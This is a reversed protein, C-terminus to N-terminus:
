KSPHEGFRLPKLEVVGIAILILSCGAVLVATVSEAGALVSTVAAFAPELAFILATRTATTRAQAWAQVAFAVATALLGTVVLAFVVAGSWVVSAKEMWRFSLAAAAAVTGLQILALRESRGRHAYRELVLIQGAFAVACGVTLVDGWNIKFDVGPVTLIAV